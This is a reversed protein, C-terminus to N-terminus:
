EDHADPTAERGRAQVGQCCEPMACRGMDPMKGASTMMEQCVAAPSHESTGCMKEMMQKMRRMMPPIGTAGPKTANSDV